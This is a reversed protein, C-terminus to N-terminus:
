KVCNFSAEKRKKYVTIAVLLRWWTFFSTMFTTGSVRLLSFNLPMQLECFYRIRILAKTLKNVNRDFM